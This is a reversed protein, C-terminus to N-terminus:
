SRGIVFGTMMGSGFFIIGFMIRAWFSRNINFKVETGFLAKIPNYDEKVMELKPPEPVPVDKATLKTTLRKASEAAKRLAEKEEETVPIETM